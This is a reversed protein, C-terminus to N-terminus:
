LEEDREDEEVEKAEAFKEEEVGGDDVGVRAVFVRRWKAMFTEARAM